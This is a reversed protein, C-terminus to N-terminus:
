KPADPGSCWQEFAARDHVEGMGTDGMNVFTSMLNTAVDARAGAGRIAPWPPLPSYHPREPSYRISDLPVLMHSRDSVFQAFLMDAPVVRFSSQYPPAIEGPAGFTLSVYRQWPSPSDVVSDFDYIWAASQGRLPQNYADLHKAKIRLLLVVHYDWVVVDGPSAALRQNWLAVTKSTNSIFVAFIDFVREIAAEGAFRPAPAGYAKHAPPAVHHTYQAPKAPRHVLGSNNTFPHTAFPDFSSLTTM